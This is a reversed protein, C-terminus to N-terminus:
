YGFRKGAMQEVILSIFHLISGKALITVAAGLIIFPSFPITDQAYVRVAGKSSLYDKILNAQHETLGDTRLTDLGHFFSINSKLHKITVESLNMEAQIGSVKIKKRGYSNILVSFLIQLSWFFLFYVSFSKLHFSRREFFMATISLISIKVFVRFFMKWMWDPKKDKVSGLIVKRKRRLYRAFLKRKQYLESFSRWGHPIIKVMFFALYVLFINILFAFAPFFHLYTQTYYRFPILFSFVIFLKADGAPWLGLKWIGFSIVFSVFTNMMVRLFHTFHLTGAILTIVHLFLGISVAALIFKNPIRKIKIDTIVVLISTLLITLLLFGDLADISM